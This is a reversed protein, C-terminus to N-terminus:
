ITEIKCLNYKFLEISTSSIVSQPLNNWIRIASPYFSHCYANVRSPLHRLHFPHGRTNRPNFILDRRDAQVLNNLIKYMMTARAELRRRELTPWDLLQLMDSVSSYRYYNNCVFRAAKRQASELKNIASQTFPSWIIAAYELISRVMMKYCAEKVARPCSYINRQLFARSTNAKSVIHNIHDKWTLHEDIYVGLYKVSSATKIRKEQINYDHLIPLKANTIRILECKDLNFTMQWKNAWLQLINLDEQLTLCDEKTHITNYLLVDDAYMKVKSIVNEPLDNIYCLFLLPALVTGQPVGSIVNTCNSSCGNIIVQQLRGTLFNEIWSLTGGRIGYSSLKYCLRHHPVRDFAKSFDLLIVDTQKSEDLNKTLDNITNLLQTECSRGRRFGHQEECLINHSQLHQLINSYIIHEM